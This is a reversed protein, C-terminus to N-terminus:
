WDIRHLFVASHCKEFISFQCCIHPLAGIIVDFILTKEEATEDGGTAILV